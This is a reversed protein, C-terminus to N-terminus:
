SSLQALKVVTSGLKAVDGGVITHENLTKNGKVFKFTPMATIGAAEALEPMEDVDIKLFAVGAHEVALQDYMPSIMRCPGCWSATYYCVTLSPKAVAEDFKEEADVLTVRSAASACARALPRLTRGLCSTRQALRLSM